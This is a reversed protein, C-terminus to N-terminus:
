LLLADSHLGSTAIAALWLHIRRGHRLIYTHLHFHIALPGADSGICLQANHHLVHARFGTTCSQVALHSDHVVRAHQLISYLLVLYWHLKQGIFTQQVKKM